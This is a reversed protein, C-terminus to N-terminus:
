IPHVITISVTWSILDIRTLTTNSLWLDWVVGPVGMGSTVDGDGEILDGM